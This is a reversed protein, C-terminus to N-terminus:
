SDLETARATCSGSQPGNHHGPSWAALRAGRMLASALSRIWAMRAAGDGPEGAVQQLGGLEVKVGYDGVRVTDDGLVRTDPQDLWRGASGNRRWCRGGRSASDSDRSLGLGYGCGQTSRSLRRHSGDVTARLVVVSAGGHEGACHHTPPSSRGAGPGTLTARPLWEPMRDRGGRHHRSGRGETPLCRVRSTQRRLVGNHHRLAM